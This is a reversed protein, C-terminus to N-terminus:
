AGSTEGLAALEEAIPWLAEAEALLGRAEERLREAQAPWRAARRLKRMASRRKRSARDQPGGRLREFFRALADGVAAAARAYAAVQDPTPASM